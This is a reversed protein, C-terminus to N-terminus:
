LFYLHFNIIYHCSVEFSSMIIRIYISKNWIYCTISLEGGRVEQFLSSYPWFYLSPQKGILVNYFWKKKLISRHSKKKIMFFFHQDKNISFGSSYKVFQISLMLQVNREYWFSFLCSKLGMIPSVPPILTLM